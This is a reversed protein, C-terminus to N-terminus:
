FNLGKVAIRNCKDEPKNNRASQFLDKCRALIALSTMLAVYVTSNFFINEM